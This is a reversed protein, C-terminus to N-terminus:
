CSDDESFIEATYVYMEADKWGDWGIGAKDRSCRGVFTEIDWGTEHFVQPLFTGCQNGKKIYIGHKGGIIEEISSIKHLPSLVSIEFIIKKMESKKVADFRYDRSAASVALEVVLQHLPKESTIRGICGRLEKDITHISVFAGQRESLWGKYEETETDTEGILYKSVGNRALKLLIAKETPSHIFEQPEPLNM